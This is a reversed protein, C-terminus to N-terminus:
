RSPGATLTAVGQWLQRRIGNLFIVLSQDYSGPTLTELLAKPLYLAFRGAEGDLIQIRNNETTLEMFISADEAKKRWRSVFTAGTIDIPDDTATKYVFTPYFDADSPITFNAEASM